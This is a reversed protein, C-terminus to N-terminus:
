LGNEDEKKRLYELRIEDYTEIIDELGCGVIKLERQEADNTDGSFKDPSDDTDEDSKGDPNNDCSTDSSEDDCEDFDEDNDEDFDEDIDDIFDEFYDFDDDPCM